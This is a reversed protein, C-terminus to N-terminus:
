ITYSLILLAFLLAGTTISDALSSEIPIVFNDPDLGKKYTLYGVAFTILIIMSVAIVNAIFLLSFFNLFANATLLGETYLAIVAYLSFMFLSALWTTLIRKSHSKLSGFSPALLGLAFKTTATSGIISGVDGVTDIM